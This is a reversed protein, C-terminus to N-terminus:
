KKSKNKPSTKPAELDKAGNGAPIETKVETVTEQAIPTEVVDAEPDDIKTRTVAEAIDNEDPVIPVQIPNYLEIYGKKLREDIEDKGGVLNDASILDGGRFKRGAKGLLCLAKVKYLQKGTQM